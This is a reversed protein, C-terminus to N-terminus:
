EEYGFVHVTGTINDSTPFITLGSYSTSLSHTGAFDQSLAGDFGRAGIARSCTPQPLYPGYLHVVYGNYDPIGGTTGPGFGGIRVSTESTLRSGSVTSGNALLNQFAYDAGSADVESVRFRAQLGAGGSTRSSKWAIVLCYNDYDGTFVNNLSLSTVETFDVGGDSNISASTGSFTISTPTMSILGEGAAM